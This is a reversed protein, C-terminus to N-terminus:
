WQGARPSMPSWLAGAKDRGLRVALCADVAREEGVGSVGHHLMSFSDSIEGPVTAGAGGGFSGECRGRFGELQSPGGAVAKPSWLFCSATSSVDPPLTGDMDRFGGVAVVALECTAGQADVGFPAFM